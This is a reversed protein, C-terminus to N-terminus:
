QVQTASTTSRTKSMYLGSYSDCPSPTDLMFDSIPAVTNGSDLQPLLVNDEGQREIGQNLEAWEQLPKSTAFHKALNQLLFKFSNLLIAPRLIWRVQRCTAPVQRFILPLLIRIHVKMRKAAVSHLAAVTKIEGGWIRRHLLLTSLMLQYLAELSGCAVKCIVPLHHMQSRGGLPGRSGLPVSFTGDQFALFLFLSLQLLLAVTSSCALAGPGNLESSPIKSVRRTPPTAQSCGLWLEFVHTERCTM